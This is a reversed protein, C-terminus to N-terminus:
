KQRLATITFRKHIYMCTYQIYGASEQYQPAIDNLKVKTNLLYKESCMVLKSTVM